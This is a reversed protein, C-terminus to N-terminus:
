PKPAASGVICELKERSKQRQAYREYATITNVPVSVPKKFSETGLYQLEAELDEVGDIYCAKGGKGIM